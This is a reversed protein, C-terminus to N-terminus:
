PTREPRGALRAERARPDPSAKFARLYEGNRASIEKWDEDFVAVVRGAVGRAVGEAAALAEQRNGTFTFEVAVRYEMSLESEHALAEVGDLFRIRVMGEDDAEGIVECTEGSHLILDHHGPLDYGPYTFKM